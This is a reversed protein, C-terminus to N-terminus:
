LTPCQRDHRSLHTVQFLLTEVHTASRVMRRSLATRMDLLDTNYIDVLAIFPLSVDSSSPRRTDFGKVTDQSPLAGTINMQLSLAPGELRRM